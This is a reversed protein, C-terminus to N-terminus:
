RLRKASLLKALKLRCSKGDINDGYYHEVAVSKAEPNQTPTSQRTSIKVFNGNATTKIDASM